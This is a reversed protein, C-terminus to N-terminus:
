GARRFLDFLAVLRGDDVVLDGEGLVAGWFALTSNNSVVRDYQSFLDLMCLSTYESTLIHNIKKSQILMVLEDSERILTDDTSVLAAGDPMNKIVEVAKALRQEDNQFFDFLRLHYLLTSSGGTSRIFIERFESLVQQITALSFNSYDSERQFYGDLLMTSGSSIVGSNIGLKELVKPLRLRGLVRSVSRLDLEVGPLSPIRQELPFRHKYNTDHSVYIKGGFTESVLKAYFVQFLQNGLGGHTRLYINM